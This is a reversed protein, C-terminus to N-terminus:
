VSASMSRRAWTLTMFGSPNVGRRSGLAARAGRSRDGVAGGGRRLDVGDGLEGAAGVFAAHLQAALEVLDLREGGREAVVQGSAAGMLDAGVGPPSMDVDVVPWAARGPGLEHLCGDRRGPEVVEALRRPLLAEVQQEFRDRRRGVEVLDADAHEAVAHDTVQGVPQAEDVPPLRVGADGLLPDLPRDDDDALRAGAGRDEVVEHGLVGRHARREAPLELSRHRRGAGLRVVVSGRMASACAPNSRTSDIM